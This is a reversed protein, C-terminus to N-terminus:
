RVPDLDRIDELRVLVRGKQLASANFPDVVRAVRLVALPECPEASYPTVHIAHVYELARHGVVFDRLNEHPYIREARLQATGVEGEGLDGRLPPVRQLRELIKLIRTGLRPEIQVQAQM